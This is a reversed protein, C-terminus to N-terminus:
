EELEMDMIAKKCKKYLEYSENAEEPKKQKNRMYFDYYMKRQMMLDRKQQQKEIMDTIEKAETKQSKNLCESIGNIFSKIKNLFYYYKMEDVKVDGM